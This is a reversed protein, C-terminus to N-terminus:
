LPEKCASNLPNIGPNGRALHKALKTGPGCYQYGPIHFEFPLRNILNKVLGRDKKKRACIIM